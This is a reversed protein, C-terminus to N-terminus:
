INYRTFINIGKLKNKIFNIFKINVNEIQIINFENVNQKLSFIIKEKLLKIDSEVDYETM